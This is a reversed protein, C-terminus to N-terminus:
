DALKRVEVACEAIAHGEVRLVDIRLGAFTVSEGVTAPRGLLALVLGGVTDVDPHEIVKGVAKSLEDLRVGGSVRLRGADDRSIPLAANADEGFEGVVEAYLDALTIIGATGGHEDMVVAMQSRTDRLRAFVRDVDAGEPVFPITRAREQSVPSAEGSARLLDKVHMAGVIRDISGDYVPYRTHPSRRLVSGVEEARAGLPLGIVRVRPVMVEHARRDRFELLEQVVDAAATRLLGGAKSERVIYALEEPTRLQETGAQRNVGVLRLLGNGIGNLAVVLPYMALQIARMMPAVWLATREAKQLALSKPVMEGIVIHFYTLITISLIAALTHAAIWKGVGWADFWTALATALVHEGYMGLGLSSLTIGLQATAIFRDQRRPDRLISHVLQAARNGRAGLREIATRPVGVIAFEAAVFLGNLVILGTILVAPFLDPM